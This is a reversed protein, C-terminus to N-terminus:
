DSMVGPLSWGGTRLGCMTRLGGDRAMVQAEASRRVGDDERSDEDDEGVEGGRSSSHTSTQVSLYLLTPGVM